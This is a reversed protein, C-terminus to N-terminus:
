PLRISLMMGYEKNFPDITPTFAFRHSEDIFNRSVTRGVIFGLTAGAAVDSVWHVNRKVRSASVLGAVGYAFFGAKHGYYQDVVTALMFTDSAHGSPFSRENSGNPRERGALEKVGFSIGSSLIYGQALSYSFSKFRNNDSHLGAIFLTGIAPALVYARGFESGINSFSTRTNRKSFYQETRQDFNAAFGTLVVGGVFPAMNRSNFLGAFNKALNKPFAGLTLNESTSTSEPKWVAGRELEPETILFDTSEKIQLAEKMFPSLSADRLDMASVSICTFLLGLFAGFFLKTMRMKIDIMSLTRALM